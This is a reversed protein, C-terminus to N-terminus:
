AAKARLGFRGAKRYRVLWSSAVAEMPTPAIGLSELGPFTGSAVNDTKLM